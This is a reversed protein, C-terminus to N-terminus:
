GPVCFTSYACSNKKPLTTRGLYLATNERFQEKAMDINHNGLLKIVEPMAGLTSKAYREIEEMENNM